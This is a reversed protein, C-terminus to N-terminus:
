FPKRLPMIEVGCIMNSDFKPTIEWRMDSIVLGGGGGGGGGWGGPKGLIRRYGV